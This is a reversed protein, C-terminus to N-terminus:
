RQGVEARRIAGSKLGTFPYTGPIEPLDAIHEFTPGSQIAAGDPYVEELFRASYVGGGEDMVIVAKKGREQSADSDPMQMVLHDVQGTTLMEDTEFAIVWVAPSNDQDIPPPSFVTANWSDFLYMVQNITTRRVVSSLWQDTGTRAKTYLVADEDSFLWAPPTPGPPLGPTMRPNVTSDPYVIIHSIRTATAVNMSGSRVSSGIVEVDRSSYWITIGVLAVLVVVISLVVTLRPKEDHM